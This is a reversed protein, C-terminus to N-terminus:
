DKHKLQWNLTGNWSEGNKLEMGKTSEMEFNYCGIGFWLRPQRFKQLSFQQKLEVRSKSDFVAWWGALPAIRREGLGSWFPFKIIEGAIPLQLIDTQNDGSGGVTYEPHMYYSVPLEIGANNTVKVDLKLTSNNNLSYDKIISIGKASNASLQVGNAIKKVRYKTNRSIGFGRKSKVQDWICYYFAVNHLGGLRDYDINVQNAGTIKDIIELIRGGRMPDISVELKDNSIIWVDQNYGYMKATKINVKGNNPQLRRVYVGASKSYTSYRDSYNISINYKELVRSSQPIDFKVIRTNGPALKVKQSAMNQGPLTDLNVNVVATSRTQNELTCIIKKDALDADVTIIKGVPTIIISGSAKTKKSLKVSSILKIPSTSKIYVVSPGFLLKFEGKSNTKLKRQKGLLSTITLKGPSTQFKGSYNGSGDWIVATYENAAANKFQYGYHPLNIGPVIGELVSEGLERGLTCLAYFTPKKQLNYDIMGFFHETYNENTGEDWFSYIFVRKFGLVYHIILGRTLWQAKRKPSIDGSPNAVKCETYGYETSIMPKSEDGHKKLVKRLKKIRHFLAEPSAPPYAAPVVYQKPKKTYSHLDLVDFYDKGGAQYFKDLWDLGHDDIGTTPASIVNEPSIKKALKYAKKLHDLYAKLPKGSIDPENGASYSYIGLAKGNKLNAENPWTCLSINREYMEKVIEPYSRWWRIQRIPTTGLIDLAVQEWARAHPRKDFRASGGGWFHNIALMDGFTKCSFPKPPTYSISNVLPYEGNNYEASIGFYYQQGPTLPYIIKRTFKARVKEKLKVGPDTIKKFAEDSIYIKWNKVKGAGRAFKKWNLSVAGSGIGSVKFSVPPRQNEPLLATNTGVPSRKGWVAVESLIMQMSGGRKKIRLKVYRAVTPKQLLLDTQKPPYIKKDFKKDLEMTGAPIFNKGDNSLLVEFFEASRSKTHTTWVSVRTLLFKGKLDIIFTAYYVGGRWSGYAQFGGEPGKRGDLLVRNTSKPRSGTKIIGKDCAFKGEKIWSLAAGTPIRKVKKDFTNSVWGPKNNDTLLYEESAIGTLPTIFTFIILTALLLQSFNKLM